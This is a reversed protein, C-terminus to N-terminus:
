TTASRPARDGAPNWGRVAPAQDPHYAALIAQEWGRAQWRTITVLESGTVVAPAPTEPNRTGLAV